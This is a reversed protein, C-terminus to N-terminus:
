RYKVSCGYPKTEPTSVAGTQMERLATEVYNTREAGLKGRPDDDIAGAYVLVGEEDIVFMHPTTKAGFARGVEGSEDLLIPYSMGWKEAAKANTDAGAGQKEAAGSNIAVWVVGESIAEAPYTELCGAEHARVVYPCGPNFWELVVRKGRQESLTFTGGTTDELTFDPAAQGVAAPAPTSAEGVSARPQSESSCAALAAFM